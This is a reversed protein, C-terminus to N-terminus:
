QATPVNTTTERPVQDTSAEGEQQRLGSESVADGRACSSIDASYRPPVFAPASQRPVVEWALARLASPRPSAAKVIKICPHINAVRFVRMDIDLVIM